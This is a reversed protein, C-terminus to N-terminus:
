HNFKVQLLPDSKASGDHRRSDADITAGLEYLQFVARDVYRVFADSIGPILEDWEVNEAHVATRGPMGGRRLENGTGHEGSEAPIM